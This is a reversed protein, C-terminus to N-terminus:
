GRVVVPSEGAPLVEGIVPHGPVEGALLLGGSTQADALLLREVEPLAGFDVWPEVWTLNRRTGGSVYGDVAAPGAAALLPVAAAHIALTVGSARALKYAHGLLGFGTVDTGARIGAAVAATAADRNLAAMVAVAEPFVEGTAKHRANLVGSGLPKTLTLAQGPEAADLRLMREPHVMGVVSMGYKPEPDTVSHGGSVQCGAAHAVDRGGRLVEAALEMPLTDGPWALLNVAAWPTGGMAYVDSLANAAAIRGWDYADDVVPTFFDATTVIAREGDLRVVAADDGGGELGVLLEAAPDEPRSGTRNLSSVLTDLEGPPIKCACGGGGAYQTLRVTM